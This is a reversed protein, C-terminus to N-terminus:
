KASTVSDAYDYCLSLAARQIDARAAERRLLEADERCLQRGTSCTGAGTAASLRSVRSRLKDLDTILQDNIVLLDNIYETTADDIEKQKRREEDLANGIAEVVADQCKVQEVKRGHRDGAFYLGGMTLMVVVFMALYAYAKTGM